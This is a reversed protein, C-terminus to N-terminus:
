LSVINPAISAPPVFNTHATPVPGASTTIDASIGVVVGSSVMAPTAANKAPRFNFRTPM